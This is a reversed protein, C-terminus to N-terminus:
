CAASCPLAARHSAEVAPSTAVKRNWAVASDRAHEHDCAGLKKVFAHASIHADAPCASDRKNCAVRQVVANTVWYLSRSVRNSEASYWGSGSQYHGSPCPMARAHAAQREVRAALDHGAGGQVAGRADPVSGAAGAPLRQPASGLGSRCLADSLNLNPRFCFGVDPNHIRCTSVWM